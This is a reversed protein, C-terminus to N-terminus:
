ISHLKALLVDEWEERVGDPVEFNPDDERAKIAKEFVEWPICDGSSDVAGEVDKPNVGLQSQKTTYATGAGFDGQRTRSLSVVHAASEIAHAVDHVISRVYTGSSVTMKLTFVAPLSSPPISPAPTGATAPDTAPNESGSPPNQTIEAPPAVDHIPASDVSSSLAGGKESAVVASGEVLRRVGEMATVREAPLQKQPWEYHHGKSPSAESGSPLSTSAPAAEQWDILELLEITCKRPEIPRPLPLGSRAYEYLPKGDM